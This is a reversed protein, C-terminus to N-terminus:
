VSSHIGFLGGRRRKNRKAVEKLEDSERDLNEFLKQVSFETENLITCPLEPNSAEIGRVPASTMSVSLNADALARLEKTNLPIAAM